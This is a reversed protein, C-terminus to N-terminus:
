MCVEVLSPSFGRGGGVESERSEVLSEAQLLLMMLSMMMFSMMMLSMVMVDHGCGGETPLTQRPLQTPLPDAETTSM